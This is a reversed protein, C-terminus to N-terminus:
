EDDETNHNPVIFDQGLHITSVSDTITGDPAVWVQIFFPEKYWGNEKAIAAWKERHEEVKAPDPAVTVRPCDDFWDDQDDLWSCVCQFERDLAVYDAHSEPIDWERKQTVKGNCFAFEGGWGQEEEFEHTFVLTPYQRSLKNIFLDLPPAWPTDFKYMIEGEPLGETIEAECADWKCGWERINWSYWHDPTRDAVDNSGFYAVLDTPAVINWFSIVSEHMGEVQKTTFKGDEGRVYDQYNTAYPKALAEKLAQVTAPEGTASLYNSVWNPM